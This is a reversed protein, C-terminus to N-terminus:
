NTSVPLSEPVQRTCTHTQSASFRHIHRHWQWTLDTFCLRNDHTYMCCQVFSFTSSFCGFLGMYLFSSFCKFTCLGQLYLTLMCVHCQMICQITYYSLFCSINVGDETVIGIRYKEQAISTYSTKIMFDWGARGGGSYEEPEVEVVFAQFHELESEFMLPAIVWNMLWLSGEKGLVMLICDRMSVCECHYLRGYLRNGKGERSCIRATAPTSYSSYMSLKSAM